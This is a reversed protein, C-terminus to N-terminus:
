SRISQATFVGTETDLLGHEVASLDKAGVRTYDRGGDIYCEKCSCWRFDHRHRSWVVDGCSRCRIASVNNENTQM